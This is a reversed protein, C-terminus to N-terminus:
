FVTALWETIADDFANRRVPGLPNLLQERLADAQGPWCREDHPECVLMPTSIQAMADGLAYSRIRQYLDYAPINGLAYWSGRRRLLDSTGPAFLDALHVERDFGDRDQEILAVRAPEPLALLWPQSADVIGPAVAAASFDSVTALARPVAYGAHELGVLAMRRVDVDARSAAARAVPGIVAEWDPRLVLRQTLLAAQRGPGDFTMWHYGCAHAAAGGHVWAESTTMRGGHDIIVLPRRGGGGSFFYAPLSTREYPIALREGQILEVARDWCERQRHWLATKEVTGDAGAILALAAGYYSAAHLYATVDSSERARAWSAGGTATWERVWSNPDGLQVRAATALVEDPSAASWRAATLLSRIEHVFCDIGAEGLM